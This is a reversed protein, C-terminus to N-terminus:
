IQKHFPPHVKLARMVAERAGTPIKWMDMHWLGGQRRLRTKDGGPHLIFAGQKRFTVEMGEEVLEHVSGLGKSAAAVQFKLQNSHGERTAFMVDREGENVITHGGAM